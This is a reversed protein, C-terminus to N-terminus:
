GHHMDKKVKEWIGHVMEAAHRMKAQHTLRQLRDSTEKYERRIAEDSKIARLWAFILLIAILFIWMKAVILMIM